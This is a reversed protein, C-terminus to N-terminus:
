ESVEWGARRIHGLIHAVQGSHWTEHWVMRMLVNGLPIRRSYFLVEQDLDGPALDDLARLTQARSEELYTMMGGWSPIRTGKELSRVGYRPAFEVKLLSKKGWEDETDAIHWLLRGLSHSGPAPKWELQDQPIPPLPKKPDSDGRLAHMLSNRSQTLATQILSIPEM